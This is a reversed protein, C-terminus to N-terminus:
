HTGARGDSTQAIGLQEALQDFFENAATLQLKRVAEPTNRQKATRTLGTQVQAHMDKFFDETGERSVLINAMIMGQIARFVEVDARLRNIEAEINNIDDDSLEVM